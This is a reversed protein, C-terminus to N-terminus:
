WVHLACACLHCGIAMAFDLKREASTKLFFGSYLLLDPHWGLPHRPCWVFYPCSGVKPTGRNSEGSLM